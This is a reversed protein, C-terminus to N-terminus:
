SSVYAPVIPQQANTLAVIEDAVIWATHSYQSFYFFNAGARLVARQRWLHVKRVGSHSGDARSTHSTHGEGSGGGKGERGPSGVM